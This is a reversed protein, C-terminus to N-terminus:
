IFFEFTVQKFPYVEAHCNSCAQYENAYSNASKWMKLCNNCKFEGFCRNKGQYPTQNTQQNEKKNFM